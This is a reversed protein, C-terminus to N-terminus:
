AVAAFINDFGIVCGMDPSANVESGAQLVDIIGAVVAVAAGDEDGREASVYLELACRM